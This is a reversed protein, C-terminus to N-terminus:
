RQEHYQSLIQRAAQEDRQLQERLADLSPFTQEDRLRAVLYLTISQGYLDGGFDFINVEVSLDDGNDVTPRRGICLMGGRQLGDPLLVDVAYVGTAPVLKGVPLVINATPFGLRHGVRHGSVVEGRLDYPRGLLRSAGAVDGSLLMRRVASSSVKAGPLECALVVEIGAERGWAYYEELTGGGHGFHHDYGMLLVRVGLQGVLVDRMFQRADMGALEPTFHLVRVEDVGTQRLMGIKEDLTSLLRPVYDAHLVQRPHRDFTILMSKMGLRAAQGCLQNALYRHGLHVGDFFGITAAYQNM